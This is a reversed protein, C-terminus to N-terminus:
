PMTEIIDRPNIMWLRFGWDGDPKSADHWTVITVAEYPHEKRCHKLLQSKTWLVPCVVSETRVDGDGKDRFRLEVERVPICRSM